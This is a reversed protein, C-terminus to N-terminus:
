VRGCEPLSMPMPLPGARMWAVPTHHDDHCRLYPEKKLRHMARYHGLAQRVATNDSVDMALIEPLGIRYSALWLSRVRARTSASAAAAIRPLPASRTPTAATM